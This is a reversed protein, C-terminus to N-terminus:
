SGGGAPLARYLATQDREEAEVQRQWVDLDLQDEIAQRVIKALVDPDLAELQCTGGSWKKSLGDSEKPPATELKHVAVQEATLAVRAPEIRNVTVVRDAEVFAAADESMSEYISEGRPDFDGAHLLLTPVDRQLARDAILRVATLSCYGGATFVPVSYDDAVRALQPGMGGAECWFELRHHQGAQRNRRYDRILKAIYDWFAEPGDYWPSSCSVVGDDRIVDFPILKARRARNLKEGLRGYALETKEYGFTGVLAYFIQRVTLPLYDAYTAIIEEVQGLLVRTKRQPRWPAYGRPRRHRNERGATFVPEPLDAIWGFGLMEDMLDEFPIPSLEPGSV